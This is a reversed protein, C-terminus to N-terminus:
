GEASPPATKTESPWQTSEKVTADQERYAARWEIAAEERLRAEHRARRAQERERYLHRYRFWPFLPEDRLAPVIVQALVIAAIALFMLVEVISLM